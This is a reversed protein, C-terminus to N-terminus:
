DYSNEPSGEPHKDGKLETFENNRIIYIPNKAGAFHLKNVNYDVAIFVMDMGDKISSNAYDQRLTRSIGANIFDLAESPRNVSPERECLRLYNNGIISMLAGPVGHGTCDAVAAMAFSEQYKTVADSVWYFDGGLIDKPQYILFYDSFLKSITEPSPLIAEQIRKAYKISDTIEKNKEEITSKQKETELKQNLIIESARKKKKYSSYTYISFVLLILFMVAVLLIVMKQKSNEAKNLEEEQEHKLQIALTKKEFDSKLQAQYAKEINAVSFLSDKLTVYHHYHDLALQYNGTTEFAISLLHNAELITEVDGIETALLLAEKGFQKAKEFEKMKCYTFCLNVKSIEISQADDIDEAIKLSEYQYQLAKDYDGIEAYIIGINNLSTTLEYPDNLVYKIAISKLHFQLATEFEKFKQYVNGINNYSYALNVSDKLIERIKLANFHYKLANASDNLQNYVNGINNYSNAIGRKDGQKIRIKLAELNNSLSSSYDGKFYYINALVNHALSKGSEFSLVNSLQLAYNAYKNASDIEDLKLYVISLENLRNVTSTDKKPLFINQKLESITSDQCFGSHAQVICAIFCGLVLAYNTM